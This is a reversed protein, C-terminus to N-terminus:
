TIPGVKVPLTADGLTTTTVGNFGSLIQGASNLMDFYLKMQIFTPFQLLDAANNPDVLVRHVDFGNIYLTLILADNHPMIVRNLNVLPFSIPGDILEAEGQSSETHVVNM